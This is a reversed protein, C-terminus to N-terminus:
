RLRSRRMPEGRREVGTVEFGRAALLASMEGNACGLDLVRAGQGTLPFSNLLITHSSYPSPKFSYHVQVAESIHAAM